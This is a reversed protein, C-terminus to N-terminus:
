YKQTIVVGHQRSLESYANAVRNNRNECKDSWVIIEKLDPNYKIVREFHRYQLHAIVESGEKKEM